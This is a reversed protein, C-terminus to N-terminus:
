TYSGYVVVVTYMAPLCYSTKKTYVVPPIKSSAMTCTIAKLSKSSNYALPPRKFGHRPSCICAFM